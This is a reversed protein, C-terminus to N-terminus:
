VTACAGSYTQNDGAATRQYFATMPGPTNSLFISYDEFRRYIDCSTATAQITIAVYTLLSTM